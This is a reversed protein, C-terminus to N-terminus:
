RRNWIGITREGQGQLGVSLNVSSPHCRSKRGHNREQNQGHWGRQRRLVRGHWRSHAVFVMQCLELLFLFQFFASSSCHSEVLICDYVMKQQLRGATRDVNVDTIGAIRLGEIGNSCVESLNRYLERLSVEAHRERRVGFDRWANRRHLAQLRRNSIRVALGRATGSNLNGSL